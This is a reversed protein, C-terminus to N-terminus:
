IRTAGNSFKNFENFLFFNGHEGSARIINNEEVQEIILGVSM